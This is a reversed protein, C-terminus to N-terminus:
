IKGSAVWDDIRKREFRWEDGEKFAPIKGSNAWTIVTDSDIELHKALEEIGFIDHMMVCNGQFIAGDAIQLRPTKINGEVIAHSLLEIRSEAEIDGKVRGSIIVNEGKIHANVFATESIILNGKAELTGEFKGKIRLNVPDKFVLSGQMAADVDITHDSRIFDKKNRLGM